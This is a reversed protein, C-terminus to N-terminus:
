DISTSDKLPSRYLIHVYLYCQADLPLLAFALASLNACLAPWLEISSSPDTREPLLAVDRERGKQPGVLNPIVDVDVHVAGNVIAQGVLDVM